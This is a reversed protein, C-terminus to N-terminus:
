ANVPVAVGRVKLAAQEAKRRLDAYQSPTVTVFTMSVTVTRKGKDAYAHIEVGTKSHSRTIAAYLTRRIETGTHRVSAGQEVSVVFQVPAPSAMPQEDVKAAKVAKTSAPKATTRRAPKATTTLAALLAAKDVTGALFADLLADVDGDATEPTAPEEPQEDPLVPATDVPQPVEGNDGACPLCRAVPLATADDRVIRANDVKLGPTGCACTLGDETCSLNWRISSLRSAYERARRDTEAKSLRPPLHTDALDLTVTFDDAQLAAQAPLIRVMDPGGERSARIYWGFGGPLNYSAMWRQGNKGMIATIRKGIEGKVSGYLITGHEASHGIRLEPLVAATEEPQEDVSEQESEAPQEDVSETRKTAIMERLSAWSQGRLHANPHEREGTEVAALAADWDQAEIAVVAKVLTQKWPAASKSMEIEGQVYHVAGRASITTNTSIAATPQTRRAWRADIAQRVAQAMRRIEWQEGPTCWLSAYLDRYVHWPTTAYDEAHSTYEAYARLGALALMIRDRDTEWPRPRVYGVADDLTDAGLDQPEAWRLWEDIGDAQADARGCLSDAVSKLDALLAGLNDGIPGCAHYENTPDTIMDRVAALLDGVYGAHEDLM